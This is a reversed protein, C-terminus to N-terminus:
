RNIEAPRGRLLYGAGFSPNILPNLFMIVYGIGKTLWARDRIVERKVGVLPVNYQVHRM